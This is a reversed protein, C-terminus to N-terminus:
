GQLYIAAMHADLYHGGVFQIEMMLKYKYRTIIQLSDNDPCGDFNWTSIDQILKKRGAQKVLMKFNYAYVYKIAVSSLSGVGPLAETVSGGAVSLPLSRDIFYITSTSVSPIIFGVASAFITDSGSLVFQKSGGTYSMFLSTGFALYYNVDDVGDKFTGATLDGFSTAPIKLGNTALLDGVTTGSFAFYSTNELYNVRLIWGSCAASAENPTGFGGPNLTGDYVGTFDKVTISSADDAIGLIKMTPQLSM